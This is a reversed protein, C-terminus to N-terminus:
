KNLQDTTGEPLMRSLPSEYTVVVEFKQPGEPNRRQAARGEISERIERAASVNKEKIAADFMVKVLAEGYTVGDALQQEMGLDQPLAKRAFELYLSSIPLCTPSSIANNEAPRCPLQVRENKPKEPM